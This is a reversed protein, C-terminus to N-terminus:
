YFILDIVLFAIIIISISLRGSNKIDKLVYFYVKLVFYFNIILNILSTIIIPTSSSFFFAFHFYFHKLAIRM